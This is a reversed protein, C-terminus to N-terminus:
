ISFADKRRSDDELLQQLPKATGFRRRLDNFTEGHKREEYRVTGIMDVSSFKPVGTTSATNLKARNVGEQRLQGDVMLQRHQRGIFVKHVRRLM